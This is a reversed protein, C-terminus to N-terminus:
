NVKKYISFQKYIIFQLTMKTTIRLIVPFYFFWSKSFAEYQSNSLKFTRKVKINTATVNIWCRDNLNIAAYSLQCLL